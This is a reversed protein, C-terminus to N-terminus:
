LLSGGYSAYVWKSFKICNKFTLDWTLICSSYTNLEDKVVVIYVFVYMTTRGLINDQCTLKIGYPKGLTRRKEGIYTFWFFPM